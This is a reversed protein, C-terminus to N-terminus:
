QFFSPVTVGNTFTKLWLVTIITQVDKRRFTLKTSANQLTESFRLFALTRWRFYIGIPSPMKLNPKQQVQFLLFFLSENNTKENNLSKETRIFWNVNVLHFISLWLENRTQCELDRSVTDGEYINYSWNFEDPRQFQEM